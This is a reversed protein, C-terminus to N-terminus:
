FLTELPKVFMMIKRIPIIGGLNSAPFSLPPPSHDSPISTGMDATILTIFNNRSSFYSSEGRVAALDSLGM